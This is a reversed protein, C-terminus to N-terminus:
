TRERGLRDLVQKLERERTAQAEVWDRIMQQEARMHQVLGQIGEALNTMAQTAVRGNAGEAVVATLRDVAAQLERASAPEHAKAPAAAVAEGSMLWDELENHFRAHAQGAQLDLFGVILSSALGFLSASFALGIGSLPVALGNKLEDFMAAAEGGGRMTRIVSGVASLTDILGWFTGLLGLLILLGSVYRLIERGEDLRAAVTDLFARTGPLTTGQRRAGLAPVLPAMLSPVKAPTEGAVVANVYAAERYLRIVQGFALLVAILLVGLILGNLGPNALFAPTIQRFLVFALFGVLALFVGMRVLYIGPRALKATAPPTAM